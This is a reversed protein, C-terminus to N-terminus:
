KGGRGGEWDKAGTAREAAIAGNTRRSQTEVLPVEREAPAGCGVLPAAVALLLTLLAFRAM